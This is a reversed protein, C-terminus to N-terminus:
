HKIPIFSWATGFSAVFFTIILITFDLMIQKKSMEHRFLRLKALLPGFICTVCALFAGLFAMVKEFGPLVIATTGIAVTILVQVGIRTGLRTSKSWNATRQAARLTITSGMLPSEEHAGAANQANDQQEDLNESEVAGNHKTPTTEVRTTPTADGPSTVDVTASPTIKPSSSAPNPVQSQEVGLVLEVTTVLPRAALAFKSLPNIIILWIAVKNLIRPYGDTQSLDRTIEDSVMRGFMLYGILGMGLYILTAAIYAWDLMQCFQRPNRMDKFLSPIIPHSSFGSMILGFSLPFRMWQPGLDIPMPQLLSGPSTKKILGDSLVVVFLTVVSVIGVVSIPSLFRLPLFMTPLVILVGIAKYAAPSWTALESIFNSPNGEKSTSLVLAHLSDGFLIVLATSVAWLELCFFFSVLIRARSGFAFNGIDAYTRLSPEASMIHALVKGTYNTVLGSLIFLIIGPILGAYSIALPLALIGIGILANVTNFWSQWFTSSGYGQMRYKGSTASVGSNRFWSPTKLFPPRQLGQAEELEDDDDVSLYRKSDKRLLSSRENATSDLNRKNMNSRISRLIPLSGQEQGDSDPKNSSSFRLHSSGPRSVGVRKPSRSRSRSREDEENSDDTIRKINRNTTRTNTQPKRESTRKIGRRGPSSERSGRRVRRGLMSLDQQRGVANPPLQEDQWEMPGAPSAAVVDDYRSRRYEDDYGEEDEDSYDSEDLEEEEDISAEDMSSDIGGNVNSPGAWHRDVFSPSTSINDGYFAQSRSYSWVLDLSSRWPAQTTERVSPRRAQHNISGRGSPTALAGTRRNNNNVSEVNRSQDGKPVPIGERAPQAM